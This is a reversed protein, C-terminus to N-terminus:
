MRVDRRAVRVVERAAVEEGEEEDDVSRYM